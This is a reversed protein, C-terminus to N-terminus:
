VKTGPSLHSPLEQLKALWSSQREWSLQVTQWNKRLTQLYQFMLILMNAWLLSAGDMPHWSCLIIFIPIIKASRHLESHFALHSIKAALSKWIVHGQKDSVLDLRDFTQQQSYLHIMFVFLCFFIQHQDPLIEPWLKLLCM